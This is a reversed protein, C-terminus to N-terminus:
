LDLRMAVFSSGTSSQFTRSRAVAPSATSRDVVRFGFKAAFFDSAFETLLYLRRVGRLRAQQIATDALIWGYGTGRADPDVALSRLIADEGLVELAVCGVTGAENRLHFFSPFDGDSAPDGMSTRELLARIAPMDSVRAPCVPDGIADLLKDHLGDFSGSSLVVVVDGAAAVEAIHKVIADVEPVHSAKTGGQHLDLALREPDFREEPRIKAPDFLRGM